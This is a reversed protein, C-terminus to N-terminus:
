RRKVGSVIVAEEHQAGDLSKNVFKRIGFRKKDICRAARPQFPGLIGAQLGLRFHDHLSFSLLPEYMLLDM